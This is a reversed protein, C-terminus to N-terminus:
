TSLEMHLSLPTYSFVPPVTLVKMHSHLIYLKPFPISIVFPSGLYTPLFCLPSSKWEPTQINNELRHSDQGPKLWLLVLLQKWHQNNM